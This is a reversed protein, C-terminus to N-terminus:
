AAESVLDRAMQRLTDESPQGKVATGGNAKIWDRLAQKDMGDFQDAQSVPESRVSIGDDGGITAKEGKLEAIQRKLEEMQSLMESADTQSAVFAQAKEIRDMAHPGIRKAVKDDAAALQEITLIKLSKMSEIEGKSLFEAQEIKTGVILQGGGHEKWYDYHRHYKQAYTIFGGMQDGELAQSCKSHAPAHLSDKAGPFKIAIMEVDDYIEAHNPNPAIGKEKNGVRAEHTKRKNLKTGMYFSIDLHAYLEDYDAM